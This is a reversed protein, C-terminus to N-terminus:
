HLGIYNCVRTARVAVDNIEKNSLNLREETSQIQFCRTSVGLQTAQADSYLPFM